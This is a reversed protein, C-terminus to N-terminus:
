VRTRGDAQQLGQSGEDSHCLAQVRRTLAKFTSSHGPGGRLRRVSSHDSGWGRCAGAATSPVCDPGPHSRAKVDLCHSTAELSYRLLVTVPRLVADRHPARTAMPRQYNQSQDSGWFQLTELKHKHRLKGPLRM